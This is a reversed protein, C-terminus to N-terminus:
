VNEYYVREEMKNILQQSYQRSCYITKHSKRFTILSIRTLGKQISLVHLVNVIASKSVRVFSGPLINELEYLRTRTEFSDTATHAFVREEDTEFFLIEKLALYYQRDEKFFAPAHRQQSGQNVQRVIAEVEPTVESCRIVVEEPEGPGVKEIRARM